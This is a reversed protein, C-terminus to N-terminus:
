FCVAGFPRERFIKVALTRYQQRLRQRIVELIPLETGAHGADICSVGALLASQADHYGIDGTVFVDVPEQLEGLSKGGSGGLVAVQQVPKKTAAYVQVYPVRLKERVQRAFDHLPMARKLRGRRGLGTGSPGNALPIIDYAPEEYPHVAHLAALAAKLYVSNVLMEFRVEPETNLLGKKGCFPSANKGPVFAGAGSTHFSCHTYNGIVGAGAAALADRLTDVHSPPVFVVLKFSKLLVDQFLPTCEELQLRHALTDNVGGSAMDLNTHAVLCAIDHVALELCVMTQPDDPNLRKLPAWILPHHAIIMNAGVRRAARVAEPTVTLCALVATVEQTLSGTQLGVKDWDCALEPPAWVAMFGCIDKVTIKM